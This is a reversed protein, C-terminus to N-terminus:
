RWCRCGHGREKKWGPSSNRGQYIYEFRHRFEMDPAPSNTSTLEVEHAFRTLGAVRGCWLHGNFWRAKNKIATYLHKATYPSSETSKGVGKIVANQSQDDILNGSLM